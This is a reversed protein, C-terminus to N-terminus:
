RSAGTSGAGLRALDISASWGYGGCDDIRATLTIKFCRCPSDWSLSGAHQQV